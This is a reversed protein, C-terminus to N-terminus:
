FNGSNKARRLSGFIRYDLHYAIFSDEQQPDPEQSIPWRVTSVCFYLRDDQGVRRLTKSDVHPGDAVSNYGWTGAPIYDNPVTTITGAVNNFERTVAYAGLIWTRRWIWPERQTQQELPSYSENATSGPTLLNTDAGLPYFSNESDARAVFFAACVLAHLPTEDSGVHFGHFKGVIRRLLYESGLTDALTFDDSQTERPADLTLVHFRTSVGGNAAVPISQDVGAVTSGNGESGAQDGLVPFWTGKSRRRRM